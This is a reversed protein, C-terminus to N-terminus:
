LLGYKEFREKQRDTLYNWFDAHNLAGMFEGITFIGVSEKRCRIKVDDTYGCWNSNIVVADLPGNKEITETYEAVGYAYCECIFVRVLTGSELIIDYRGGGHSIFNDVRSHQNMRLEFFKFNGYHSPWPYTESHAPM